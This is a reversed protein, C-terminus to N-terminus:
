LNYTVANKDDISLHGDAQLQEIVKEAEAETLARATNMVVGLLRRRTRPRNHPLKRLQELVAPLAEAVRASEPKAAAAPKAKKRGGFTPFEDHRTVQLGRDKLHEVLPDFGKDRSVIHFRAAPDAQAARGLYYALVFDLANRGPAPVRVLQVAAAHEVLQEVLAVSLKSQKAGM